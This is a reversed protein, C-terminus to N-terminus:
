AGVGLYAELVRGDQRVQQPPGDVLNRGEAMVWVRDCLTMIVEINHEIILFAIGEQHWSVIAQCIQEILTPNVGAMPEDLLILKPQVMLVQALGLLKRQGGSLAGAYDQMKAGLGVSELIARAQERLQREQRAIPEAGLWVQWFREGRQDQAALMVNDLVTLRAFVRPTQFTRVLGLQAVQHPGYPLLSRGQFFIDGRDPSSFRSLLQFLTSKGAGNPGILGTIQGSRATLQVEAVAQVGGFSKSLNRAELLITERDPALSLM